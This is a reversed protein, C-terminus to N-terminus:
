NLECDNWSSVAHSSNPLEWFQRLAESAICGGRQDGGLNLVRSSRRSVALLLVAASFVSWHSSQRRVNSQGQGQAPRRYGPAFRETSHRDSSRMM